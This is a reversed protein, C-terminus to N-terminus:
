EKDDNEFDVDAFDKSSDDSSSDKDSKKEDKEDIEKLKELQSQLEFLQTELIETTKIAGDREAKVKQM